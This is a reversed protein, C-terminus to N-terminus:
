SKVDFRAEQRALDVGSPVLSLEDNLRAEPLKVRTELGLAPIYVSAQANGTGVVVGKGSWLPDRLLRVLTWHLQSAREAQRLLSSAAAARGLSESIEDERMPPRGALAARIQQHALLDSYRRLPSTAQAYFPVGLGRHARPQPGAMGAKMLRRKAFEGALGGPLAQADQPAEQSYYPFPLSREFAWRAAAEGGMVMMERVMASSRFEPIVDIHPDGDRVWVRVEPIEIEVAGAAKRMARRVSALRNLESLPGSALLPDAAGYSLRTVKVFSPVIEVERVAGDEDMAARISLARSVESLGLGFRQLAADPLMPYVGEPLYLTAGRDRAERDAPIGPLVTGDPDAVHVWVDRGDFSVADDPDHSWENDIAWAELNTLDRRCADDDPGLDLEPAKLSAGARRPWPNVADDWRGTKLLWAHVAEPKEPLGLEALIKAKQTQGLAFAEVEGLFREDGALFSGGKARRVFDERDAAETEKRARRSSEREREEKSVTRFADQGDEPRFRSGGVAELRCALAEAPGYSGFVLGCLDQLSQCAGESMEWATEFDGDARPEPVRSVPGPHLLEVDKPRVKVSPAGPIALEIKDGSVSAIAPKGKYFVLSGNPIM